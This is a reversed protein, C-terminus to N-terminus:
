EALFFAVGDGDGGPGPGARWFYEACLYLAGGFFPITDEFDVGAERLASSMDDYNKQERYTM